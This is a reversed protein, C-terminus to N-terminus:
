FFERTMCDLIKLDVLRAFGDSDLKECLHETFLWGENHEELISTISKLDKDTIDIHDSCQPLIRIM